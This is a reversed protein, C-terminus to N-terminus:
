FERWEQREWREKWEWDWENRGRERLFAESYRVRGTFHSDVFVFLDTFQARFCCVFM